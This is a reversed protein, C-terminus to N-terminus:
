AARGTRSYVYRQFDGMGSLGATKISSQLGSLDSIPFQYLNALTVPTAPVGTAQAVAGMVSNTTAVLASAADNRVYLAGGPCATMDSCKVLTYGSPAQSITAADPIIYLDKAAAQAAVDSLSHVITGFAPIAPGAPAAQKAAPTVAVAGPGFGWQTFWGNMYGYVGVGAAGLLLLTGTSDKAMTAREDVESGHVPGAGRGM